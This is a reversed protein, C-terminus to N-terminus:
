SAADRRGALARDAGEASQRRLAHAGRRRDVAGQHEAREVQDLARRRGAAVDLLGHPAIRGLSAIGINDAVSQEGILCDRRDQAMLGLGLAVADDPGDIAARAGDVLIAGERRGPWAGYIALAAEICGAGLLGFLGVIEGEASRSTSARRGAAARRADCVGLGRSSSRSTASRAPRRAASRRRPADGVM